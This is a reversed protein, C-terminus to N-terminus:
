WSYAAGFGAMLQSESGEDDVIPSDAAEGVIYTYKVIGLLRWNKTLKYVGAIQGNVDRFDDDAKYEDLGSDAADTEDVGFYHDMYQSNGYTTGVGVQLDLPKSVPFWFRASLSAIWGDYENGIDSLLEVSTIFRYRPDATDRWTYGAFIGAEATADIDEMDDVRDNEVDKRGPRYNLAPGLTFNPHNLVNFSLTTAMLQIYRYQKEFTYRVIPAAVATYDESGVYEPAAGVIIGAITPVNDIIFAGEDAEAITVIGLFLVVTFVVGMFRKMGKRRKRDKIRVTIRDM